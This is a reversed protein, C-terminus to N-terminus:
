YSFQFEVKALLQVCSSSVEFQSCGGAGKLPPIKIRSGQVKSMGRGGEFPSNSSQVKFM